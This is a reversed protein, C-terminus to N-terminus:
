FVLVAEEGRGSSGEEEMVMKWGNKKRKVCDCLESSYSLYDSTQELTPRVPSRLTDVLFLEAVPFLVALVPCVLLVCATLEESHL